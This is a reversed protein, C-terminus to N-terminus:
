LKMKSIQYSGLCIKILGCNGTVFSDLETERLEVNNYNHKKNKNITNSFDNNDNVYIIIKLGIELTIHGSHNISLQSSSYM